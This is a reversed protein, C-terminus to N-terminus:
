DYTVEGGEITMGARRCAWCIYSVSVFYCAPLRHLACAKVGLVTTRGGLGSPGIDLENLDKMLREELDALVPEPNVDDLKRLLQRKGAMYATGRDGGIALGIVGPACANGQAIFVADLVCRRVGELDRGAGLSADPLKYQTSMNESGGGKLLLDVRLGRDRPEFHFYPADVGLNNGTNRGTIPDVANPRLYYKATATAAAAETAEVIDMQRHEPGHQIFFILKGTDQCIPTSGQSAQRANELMLRLTSAAPSGPKETGIAREMARVVDSPLSTSARRVLELFNGSLQEVAARRSQEREGDTEVLKRRHDLGSEVMERLQDPTFPKAMFDFAGLKTAEVASEITAYGTVIICVTLPHTNVVRDLVEMGDLGPMKLDLLVVDPDLEDIRSLGEAGDSATECAYGAKTLVQTCSDRMSEEDDVVLVTRKESM